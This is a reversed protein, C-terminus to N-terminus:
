IKKCTELKRSYRREDCAKKAKFCANANAIGYSEGYSFRKLTIPKNSGFISDLRYNCSSMSFSERRDDNITLTIKDLFFEHHSSGIQLAPEIKVFVPLLNTPVFLNQNYRYVYAGYPDADLVRNVKYHALNLVATTAAESKYDLEIALIQADAPTGLEKFKNNMAQSVDIPMGPTVFEIVEIEVEYVSSLATSAYLFLTCLLLSRIM